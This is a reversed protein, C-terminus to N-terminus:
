GVQALGLPDDEIQPLYVIRQQRFEETKAAATVLLCILHKQQYPLCDIKQGIQQLNPLVISLFIKCGSTSTSYTNHRQTM